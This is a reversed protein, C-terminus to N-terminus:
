RSNTPMPGRPKGQASGFPEPESSPNPGAPRFPWLMQGVYGAPVKAGGLGYREPWREGPCYFTGFLRDIWPLHVAFNRDVAEQEASHHWHHFRPTVVLRELWGFRFRVNAHIFVAHFSVFTLYAYVPGQAFGLLYIPLFTFGRTLVSNATSVTATM